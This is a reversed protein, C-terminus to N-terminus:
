MYLTLETLGGRALVAIVVPPIPIFGIYATERSSKSDLITGRWATELNQFNNHQNGHNRFKLSLVVDMRWCFRRPGIQCPGFHHWNGVPFSRGPWHQQLELRPNRFLPNLSGSSNKALSQLPIGTKETMKKGFTSEQCSMCAWVRKLTHTLVCQLKHFCKCLFWAYLCHSTPLFQIHAHLTLSIINEQTELKCLSCM